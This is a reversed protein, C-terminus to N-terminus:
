VHGGLGTWWTFCSSWSSLNVQPHPHSTVSCKDVRHRYLPEQREPSVSVNRPPRPMIQHVGQKSSFSPLHPSLSFFPFFLLRIFLFLLLFSGGPFNKRIEKTRGTGEGPIRLLFPHRGRAPLRPRVDGM